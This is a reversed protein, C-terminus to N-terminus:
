VFEYRYSTVNLGITGGVTISTTHTGTRVYSCFGHYIIGLLGIGGDSLHVRGAKSKNLPWFELQGRTGPEM